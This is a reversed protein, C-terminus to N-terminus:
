PATPLLGLVEDEEPFRHTEAKSFVLEDGAFVDFQGKLGPSAEADLGRGRLM